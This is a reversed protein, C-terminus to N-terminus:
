KKSIINLHIHLVVKVNANVSNVNKGVAGASKEKTKAAKM